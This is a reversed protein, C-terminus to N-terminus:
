FSVTLIPRANFRPACVASLFSGARPFHAHQISSGGSSDRLFGQAKPTSSTTTSSGAAVCRRRTSVVPLQYFRCSEGHTNFGAASKRLLAARVEMGPFLSGM